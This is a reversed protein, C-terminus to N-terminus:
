QDVALRGILELIEQRARHTIAYRFARSSMYQGEAKSHLGKETRLTAYYAVAFAAQEAPRKGTAKGKKVWESTAGIPWFDMMDDTSLHCAKLIAGVHADFRTRYFM